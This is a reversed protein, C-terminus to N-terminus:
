KSSPSTTQPTQPAGTPTRLPKVRPSCQLGLGASYTQRSRRRGARPVVRQAADATGTASISERTHTATSRSTV